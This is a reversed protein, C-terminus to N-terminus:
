REVVKPKLKIILEAARVRNDVKYGYKIVLIPCRLRLSEQYIINGYFDTRLIAIPYLKPELGGFCHKIFHVFSHEISNQLVSIVRRGWGGREGGGFWSM